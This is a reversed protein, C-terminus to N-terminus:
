IKQKKIYELYITMNTKIMESVGNSTITGGSIADVGHKLQDPPLIKSAGKLVRISTFNGKDDFITETPLGFTYEDSAMKCFAVSEISYM